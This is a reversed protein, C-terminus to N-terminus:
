ALYLFRKFPKLASLPKIIVPSFGRHSHSREMSNFDVGWADSKLLDLGALHLCNLRDINSLRSSFHRIVILFHNPNATTEIFM